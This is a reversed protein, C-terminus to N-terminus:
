SRVETRDSCATSELAHIVAAIREAPLSDGFRLMRGDRLELSLGVSSASPEPHITVPLFAPQSAPESAPQPTTAAHKSLMRRWVYFASKGFGGARCFARVSLGSAEFQAMVQRVFTEREVGCRKLTAM